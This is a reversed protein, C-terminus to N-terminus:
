GPGIDDTLSTAAELARRDWALEDRPHDQADAMSHAIACRHLADGDPGVQAWLEAFAARAAEREGRQSVELVAGIRSLTEGPTTM